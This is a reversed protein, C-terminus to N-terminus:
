IVFSYIGYGVLAVLSGGLLWLSNMGRKRWTMFDVYDKDMDYKTAENFLYCTLVISAIFVGSLIWTIM